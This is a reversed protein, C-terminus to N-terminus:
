ELGPQTVYGILKYALKAATFACAEPGEDPSLETLDFGVVKRQGTVVRLLETVERWTMGGPEPTGVAAMISPDFVDLDLSVYVHATLSSLVQGAISRIDPYPPTWHFIPLRAQKAFEREEASMSRVGVQVVPCLDCLRRAASAHGWRTNMYSDRLDAHADLYLVSLDAYVRTMAKVAGITVSHDGGLTVALKGSDATEQVASCVRDVMAEPSRMDPAVEPATYIGAASIDRDLELDYDELHKSAEIIARPGHRAGSKYTTTSDYPVPIISVAASSPHSEEPTVDLFTSWRAPCGSM